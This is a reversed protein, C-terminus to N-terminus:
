LSETLAAPLNNSNRRSRSRHPVARTSAEGPEGRPRISSVTMTPTWEISNRPRGGPPENRPAISISNV